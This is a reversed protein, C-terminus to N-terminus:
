SQEWLNEPYLGQEIMQRICRAAIPADRRYTVGFCEDNTHLVKVTVKEEEVLKDVVTPIFLESDRECSREKLFQQFHAKLHHFISLQFGWLNRSVIEDGTLLRETGDDEFYRAGTVTKEVKKREVVKRLLMKEDCECVGRSVPGFESLTDRLTYGVMAYDNESLDKRRLFRAMIKFSSPGYYDDANIVAFPEHILNGAVLIAHGTGWPKDREKPVEFDEVQGRLPSTDVEQYAYATEVLNGFKSGIKEKFASEFYHRIVFVLKGFGANIADYISYDIIIEGNPGVPDIQKLGGYRTGLGAALILLTPKM